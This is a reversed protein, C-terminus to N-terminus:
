LIDTAWKLHKFIMICLSMTILRHDSVHIVHKINFITNSTTVICTWNHILSIDKEAQPTSYLSCQTLFLTNLHAKPKHVIKALVM